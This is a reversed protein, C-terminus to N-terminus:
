EVAAHSRVAPAASRPPPGPCAVRGTEWPVADGGGENPRLSRGSGGGLVPSTRAWPFRAPLPTYGSQTQAVWHTWEM